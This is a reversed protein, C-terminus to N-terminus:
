SRKQHHLHHRHQQRVQNQAQDKKAPVEKKANKQVELWYEERYQEFAERFQMTGAKSSVILRLGEGPKLQRFMRLWGRNTIVLKVNYHRLARNAQPIFKRPQVLTDHYLGSLYFLLLTSLGALLCVRYLFSLYHYRTTGQWVVYLFYINWVVLCVFLFTYKRKISKLRLYEQRFSEEFILLDVFQDAESLKKEKM